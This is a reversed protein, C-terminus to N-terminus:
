SAPASPIAPITFVPQPVGDAVSDLELEDALLVGPGPARAESVEM